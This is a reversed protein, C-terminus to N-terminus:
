FVQYTLSRFVFFIFAMLDAGSQFTQLIHPPSKHLKTSFRSWM